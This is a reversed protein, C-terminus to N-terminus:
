SFSQLRARIPGSAANALDWTCPPWWPHSVPGSPHYRPGDRRRVGQPRQLWTGGVGPGAPRGPGAESYRAEAECRAPYGTNGVRYLGGPYVWGTGYGGLVGTGRVVTMGLVHVWVRTELDGYSFRPHSFM